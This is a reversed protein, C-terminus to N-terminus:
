TENETTDNNIGKKKHKLETLERYLSLNLKTAIDLRERLYTNEDKLSTMKDKKKNRIQETKKIHALSKVANVTHSM